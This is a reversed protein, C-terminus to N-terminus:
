DMECMFAMARSAFRQCREEWLQHDGFGDERMVSGEVSCFDRSRCSPMLRGSRKWNLGMQLPSEAM